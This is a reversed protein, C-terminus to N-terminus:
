RNIEPSASVWELIADFAVAQGEIWERATQHSCCLKSAPARINATAAAVFSALFADERHQEIWALLRDDARM